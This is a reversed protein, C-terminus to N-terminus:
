EKASDSDPIRTSGFIVRTSSIGNEQQILEPKIMELQLRVPFLEDRMLFDHDYYALRYSPSRTQPMDPMLRAADIDQEASPFAQKPLKPETM